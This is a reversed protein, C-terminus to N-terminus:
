RISFKLVSTLMCFRCSAINLEKRFAIMVVKMASSTHEM